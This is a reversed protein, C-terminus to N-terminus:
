RLKIRKPIQPCIRSARLPKQSKAGFFSMGGSASCTWVEKAGADFYLAMKERIEARHQRAFDSRRLDGARSSFLCSQGTRGHRVAIGM